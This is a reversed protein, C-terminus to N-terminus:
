RPNFISKTTNQPSTWVWEIAQGFFLFVILRATVHSPLYIKSFRETKISCKLYGVVGNLLLQSVQVLNYIEMGGLCHRFIDRKNWCLPFTIRNDVKYISLPSFKSLTGLTKGPITFGKYIGVFDNVKQTKLICLFSCQYDIM